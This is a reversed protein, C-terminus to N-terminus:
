AHNGGKPTPINRAAAGSRIADAAQQLVNSSIRHEDLYLSQTPKRAEIEQACREREAEVAARVQDAAYLPTWEDAHEGDPTYQSALYLNSSDAFHPSGLCYAVPEPLKIDDPM